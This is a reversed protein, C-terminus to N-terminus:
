NRLFGQVTSIWPLTNRNAESGEYGEPVTEPKQQNNTGCFDRCLASGRFPIGTRKAGRMGKWCQKPNRSIILEADTREAGFGM